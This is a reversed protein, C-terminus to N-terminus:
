CEVLLGTGEKLAFDEGSNLVHGRLLFLRLFLRSEGKGLGEGGGDTDGDPEEFKEENKM